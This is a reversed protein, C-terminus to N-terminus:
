SWGGQLLGIVIPNKTGNALGALGSTNAPLQNSATGAQIIATGATATNAYKLVTDTANNIWFALWYRGPNIMKPTTLTTSLTGAATVPTAGNNTAISTILAGTDFNYIGVDYKSTGGAGAGFNVRFGTLIVPADVKVYALYATNVALAQAAGFNLLDGSYLAVPAPVPAALITHGM